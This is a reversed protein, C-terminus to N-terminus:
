CVKRPQHDLDEVPKPNVIDRNLTGIGEIVSPLRRPTHDAAVGNATSVIKSPGISIDAKQLLDLLGRGGNMKKPTSIRVRNFQPDRPEDSKAGNSMLRSSDNALARTVASKQRSQSRSENVAKQVSAISGNVSYEVRPKFQPAQTAFPVQTSIPSGNISYGSDIQSQVPSGEGLSGRETQLQSDTFEQTRLFRLQEILKVTEPWSDMIARPHGFMVSGESGISKFEKILLTVRSPRPGLHTAVIEFSLIQVLGGLTGETVRKRKETKFKRAASSAITAKM